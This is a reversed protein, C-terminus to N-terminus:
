GIESAAPDGPPTRRRLRPADKAARLVLLSGLGGTDGLEMLRGLEGQLVTAEQVLGELAAMLAATEIEEAVQAIGLTLLWSGQTTVPEPRFGASHAARAVASFNVEATIDKSGPEDLPSPTAEERGYTAVTGDPHDLWIDPELGGYDILLLYGRTLARSADRCWTEVGSSIEFRAGPALHAAAARAPETLTVDSLAGLREVFNEGDVDVYVEQVSATETVALVHVPFNDLVENAFVCGVVPPSSLDMSWEASGAAPGLRRRQWGQVRDFREIFRWRVPVGMSHAEGMADAALDGQGGGIEVVWFPDPGGLAQWMRRFERAVLRGFWPTLSPSTRYHSGHGPVRTAYYGDSPHYLAAQMFDRFPVPGSSGMRERLDQRLSGAM